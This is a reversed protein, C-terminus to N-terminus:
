SASLAFSTTRRCMADIRRLAEPHPVEQEPSTARAVQETSAAAGFTALFGMGVAMAESAIILGPDHGTREAPIGGGALTITKPGQSLTLIPRITGAKGLRLAV